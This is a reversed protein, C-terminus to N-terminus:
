VTAGQARCGQCGHEDNITPGACDICWAIRAPRYERAAQESPCSATLWDIEWAPAKDALIEAIRRRDPEAPKTEAAVIAPKVDRDGVPELGNALMWGRMFAADVRSV